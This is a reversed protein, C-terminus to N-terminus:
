QYWQHFNMATLSPEAVACRQAIDVSQVTEELAEAVADVLAEEELLAADLTVEVQLKEIGFGIEVVEQRGWELSTVDVGAQECWTADMLGAAVRDWECPMEWAKLEIVLKVLSRSAPAAAESSSPQQQHSRPKGSGGQPYIAEKPTGPPFLCWRKRGVLLANWASTAMPDTHM